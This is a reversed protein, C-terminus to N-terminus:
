EAPPGGTPPGGPTGGPAGGPGGPGGHGGPSGGAPPGGGEGTREKIKEIVRPDNLLREKVSDPLSDLKDKLRGLGGGGSGGSSGGGGGKGAGAPGSHDIPDGGTIQSGQPPLPKQTKLIKAREIQDSVAKHIQDVRSQIRDPPDGTKVQEEIAKFAQMYSAIGMGQAKAQQIRELLKQRAELAPGPMPADDAFCPAAAAFALVACLLLSEKKNPKGSM